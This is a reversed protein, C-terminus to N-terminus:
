RRGLLEVLTGEDLRGFDQGLLTGPPYGADLAKRLLEQAREKDGLEGLARACAVMTEPRNGDRALALEVHPRAEADKGEKALARALRAHAVSDDPRLSVLRAFCESASGCRRACRLEHEGLLSLSGADLAGEGAVRAIAAHGAEDEGHESRAVAARLRPLLWDPALEGSRDFFPLAEKWRDRPVGEGELFLAEAAARRARPPLSDLDFPAESPRAAGCTRALAQAALKTELAEGESALRSLKGFASSDGGRALTEFAAIRVRPDGKLMRGAFDFVLSGLPSVASGEGGRLSRGGWFESLTRAAGAQAHVDPDRLARAVYSPVALDAALRTAESAETREEPPLPSGGFLSFGIPPGLGADAPRKELFALLMLGQRDGALALERVATERVFPDAEVRVVERLRTAGSRGAASAFAHVAYARLIADEDALRREIAPVTSPDALDALGILAHLWAETRPPSLTEEFARAAADGGIHLIAERARSGVISDPSRRLARVLWRPAREHLAAVAPPLPETATCLWEGVLADAVQDLEAQRREAFGSVEASGKRDRAVERLVPLAAVGAETLLKEAIGRPGGRLGLARAYGLLETRREPALDPIRDVLYEAGVTERPDLDLRLSRLRKAEAAADNGPADAARKESLALALLARHEREGGHVVFDLTEKFRRSSRDLAADLDDWYEALMGMRQFSFARRARAEPPSAPTALAASFDSVAAAHDGAAAAAVGALLLGSPNTRDAQLAREFGARAVELDGMAFACVGAARMARSGTPGTDVSAAEFDARAGPLDGRDFRAAGRRLLAGVSRPSRRVAEEADALAGSPNGIRTRIESRLLLAEVNEPALSLAESVSFIAGNTEDKGGPEGLADLARARGLHAAVSMPDVEIARDFKGRAELNKGERLFAHALHLIARMNKDDAVEARRALDVQEASIPSAPDAPLPRLLEEAVARRSDAEAELDAIAEAHKELAEYAMGRGHLAEFDGPRVELIATWERVADATKGADALLSAHRKSLDLNGLRSGRREIELARGYANAAEKPNNAKEYVEGLTELFAPADPQLDAARRAEDLAAALNGDQLFRTARENAERAAPNGRPLGASDGGRLLTVALVVLLFLGAAAGAAISAAISVRASRAKKWLRYPLSARKGQIPEDRLFRHLDEAVELSTRYRRESNKEICKLVITELDRPVRPNRKRPAAPEAFLIQRIVEQSSDGDFPPRLALAQYLSVGLSYVDTRRDIPVRKATLQEPSMYLPTGLMDGTRTLSATGEERALGFDTVRPEGERDLLINAPKVDRHIIGQEHAHHLARAVKEFLEAMRQVHAHQLASPSIEREVTGPPPPPAPAGPRWPEGEADLLDGKAETIVLPVDDERPAGAPRSMGELLRDLSTGEVYEMAIWHQGEEAGAAFIPVINPHHLRAAAEAERKFREVRAPSATLDVPLVKLAVTRRLTTQEAVYVVGMGGRGIERILTFDGLTRVGPDM